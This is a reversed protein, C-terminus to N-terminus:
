PANNAVMAKFYERLDSNIIYDDLTKPAYKDVWLEKVMIEGYFFIVKIDNTKLVLDLM